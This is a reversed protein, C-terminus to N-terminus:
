NRSPIRDWSYGAGSITCGATPAPYVEQSQLLFTDTKRLTYSYNSQVIPLCHTLIQSICYTGHLQTPFKSVSASAIACLLDHWQNGVGDGATERLRSPAIDWLLNATAMAAAAAAGGKNALNLIAGRIWEARTAVDVANASLSADAPTTTPAGEQTMSGQTVPLPLAVFGLGPHRRVCKAFRLRARGFGGV